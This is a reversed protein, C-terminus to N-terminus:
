IASIAIKGGDKRQRLGVIMLGVLAAGFLPLAPPLPVPSVSVNATVLAGPSMATNGTVELYYSGKQLAGTTLAAFESGVTPSGITVGLGSKLLTGSGVTGSYLSFVSGHIVQAAEAYASAFLESSAHVASALSFSFIDTLAGTSVVYATGSVPTAWNIPTIPTASAPGSVLVAMGAIAALSIIRKM